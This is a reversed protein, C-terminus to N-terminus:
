ITTNSENYNDNNQKLKDINTLVDQLIQIRNQYNSVMAHIVRKDNGSKELDKKLKQYDQELIEIQFLADVIIKQFEPSESEEVKLKELETM